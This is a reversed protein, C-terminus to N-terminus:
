FRAVKLIHRIIANSNKIGELAPLNDTMVNPLNPNQGFVLQYSSFGNWMQLCNKANLAWALGQSLNLKPNDEMIKELCRDVVAHNRECLGNQWPSEAATHLVEINLNECMDKFEENAFEGGNDALFKKPSGFGNGIWMQVVNDVITSPKKSKIIRGTTFRTFMDILYLINVNVNWIKLDM